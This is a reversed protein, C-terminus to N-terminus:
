RRIVGTPAAASRIQITTQNSRGEDRAVNGAPWGAPSTPAFQPATSVPAQPFYGPRQQPAPGRYGPPPIAPLTAVAAQAPPQWPRAYPAAPAFQPGAFAPLQRPMLATPCSAPGSGPPAPVITITLPNQLEVVPWQDFKVFTKGVMKVVGHRARIVNEAAKEILQALTPAAPAVTPPWFEVTLNGEAAPACSIPETVVDFGLKKEDKDYVSFQVVLQGTTPPLVKSKTNVILLKNPLGSGATDFRFDVGGFSPSNPDNCPLLYADFESKKWSFGETSAAPKEEGPARYVPVHLHSTIGYPTALHVDVYEGTGDKFTLPNINTPITVRLVERSLLTFYPLCKGGAIIKTNNVSFHKGVLYLTTGNCQCDQLPSKPAAANGFLQSTVPAPFSPTHREDTPKTLLVGPAGYWGALEPALDTVGNNFMEFGGLTNEIPVQSIMSQLPLERDLQKVRNLLRSVEGGRYCGADCVSGAMQHMAQISRSLKVTDVTSPEVDHRCPFLGDRQTLRFWNSHVEFDVYPVFSPMIAIAVCERIGPEIMRDMLDVDPCPGGFLTQGFTRITGKSTPPQFRPYFRWGFTDEGHAFGAATRNLTVTEFQADLQRTFKMFANANISGSVFALSLALQLERRRSFAEGINQEDVAPDLAFVHIPWRCEVYQMFAQRDEASPDPLYMQGPGQTCAMCGKAQGVRRMDDLLHENLLASEVVIAWALAEVTTEAHIQDAQCLSVDAADESGDDLIEGDAPGCPRPHDHLTKFFQNRVYNLADYHEGVILQALKDLGGDLSEVFSWLVPSGNLLQYAGHLEAEIFRQSDLLHIPDQITGMWRVNAGTYSHYLNKAILGLQRKGIVDDLQTPPLPHRAARSRAPTGLPTNTIWQDLEQPEKELAALQKKKEALLERKESAEKAKRTAEAMRSDINNDESRVTSAVPPNPLTGENPAVPAADTSPPIEEVAPSRNSRIEQWLQQMSYIAEVQSEVQRELGEPSMSPMPSVQRRWEDIRSRVNDPTPSTANEGPADAAQSRLHRTQDLLWTSRYLGPASNEALIQTELLDCIQPGLAALDALLAAIENKLQALEGPIQELREMKEWLKKEAARTIPLGLLDVLDNTVLSRFTTPLLDESLRPHATVTIEAGYGRRTRAGPLVSVPVRILNLSYGPADATDDGENVRRFEHLYNLYRSLQSLAETPELAIGGSKFGTFDSPSVTKTLNGSIKQDVLTKSDAAVPADLVQVQNVTSSDASPVRVRARSTGDIAAGLSVAMALYSNDSRSLTGNLTLQFQNLQAYMEEEYEQRHKMMRAQGWVDPQKAVVSGYNDIHQELWDIHEALAEVSPTKCTAPRQRHFVSQLFDGARLSPAWVAQFLTCAVTLHTIFLRKLM